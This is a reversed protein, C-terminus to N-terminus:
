WRINKISSNPKSAQYSLTQRGKRKEMRHASRFDSLIDKYTSKNGKAAM